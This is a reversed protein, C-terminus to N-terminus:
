CRKSAKGQTLITVGTGSIQLVTTTTNNGECRETFGDQADATATLTYQGSPLGTIDIYQDPLKYGYKDGWGISLGTTVSTAAATGCGTTPYMASQPANPMALDFPKNDFFCFGHKEGTRKITANANQLEYTELDRLHWHNHGDGAFYMAYDTPNSTWTGDGNKIQQDVLMEGDAQRDHGWVQFPADGINIIITTFRLRTQGAPTREVSFGRLQAMGLDPMLPPDAAIATMPLTTLVIAIAAALSRRLRMTPKEQTARMIREGTYGMWPAATSERTSGTARLGWM